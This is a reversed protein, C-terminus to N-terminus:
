SHDPNIFSSLYWRCSCRIPWAVSGCDVIGIPSGRHGLNDMILLSYTGVAQGNMEHHKLLLAFALM